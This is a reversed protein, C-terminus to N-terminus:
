VGRADPPWVVKHLQLGLRANLGDQLMWTVLDEPACLGWAPSLLLPWRGELGRGRIQDRSWRYDAESAIVFKLEGRDSLHDLNEWLNRHSEGSDPCKVDLITHVESPVGEISVGGSTELLVEHGLDLLRQMLPIATPQVLPEGGTVEITHIGHATAEAVVDDLDRVIGGTFTFESDCWTCRLPCGTLRVFVCPKGAHTSEGQVSAYIETIRIRRERPIAKPDAASSM